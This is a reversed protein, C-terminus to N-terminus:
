VEECSRILLIPILVDAQLILLMNLVKQLISKKLFFLQNPVHLVSRM